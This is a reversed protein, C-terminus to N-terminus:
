VRDEEESGIREGVMGCPAVYTKSKGVVAIPRTMPFPPSVILASCDEM